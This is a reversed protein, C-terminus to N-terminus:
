INRERWPLARPFINESIMLFYLSSSNCGVRRRVRNAEKM